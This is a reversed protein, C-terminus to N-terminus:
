RILIREMKHLEMCNYPEKKKYGLASDSGTRKQTYATMSKRMLKLVM